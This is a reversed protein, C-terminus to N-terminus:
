DLSIPMFDYRSDHSTKHTEQSLSGFEDYTTDLALYAQEVQYTKLAGKARDLSIFLQTKNRWTTPIFEKGHDYIKITYEGENKAYIVGICRESDLVVGVTM